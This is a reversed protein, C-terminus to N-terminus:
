ENDIRFKTGTKEFNQESASDASLKQANAVIEDISMFEGTINNSNGCGTLAFTLIVVLLLIFTLKFKRM